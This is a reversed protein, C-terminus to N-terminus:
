IDVRAGNGRLLGRGLLHAMSMLLLDLTQAIFRRQSLTLEVTNIRVITQHGRLKLLPPFLGQGIEFVRLLSLCCTDDRWWRQESEARLKLRGKSRNSLM